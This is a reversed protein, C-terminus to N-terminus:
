LIALAKLAKEIGDNEVTDTVYDALALIQPHSVQMAVSLGGLKFLEVDNLEDGFNMVEHVQLNLEELVRSVGEAKSIPVSVIDSSHPHWRVMRVSEALEQPLVLQDDHDSLTLMQYVSQTKYFDAAVPLQGYVPLIADAMLDTWRSAVVQDSGYFVHDVQAADLWDVLASVVPKAIPCDYIVEGNQSVVYAGNATVFFDPNLAKIEPVVGRLNRGTAIGTLIGRQRLSEFVSTISAPMYGTEKVRLTDDIDFFIIKIDQAQQLLKEMTEM